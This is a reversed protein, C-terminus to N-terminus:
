LYRDAIYDIYKENSDYYNNALFTIVEQYSIASFKVNDAKTYETFREIEKRHEHGEEGLVDYWLYLLRFSNKGYMKKLGLIHKILQSSDLFKFENDIPSITKALINLNPINNWLPIIDNNFYKPDFGKKGDRRKSYAESFKCEIAFVKYQADDNNEIVVDINPHIQFANSIPFKQEFRIDKQTKNQKECLRCAHSINEIKGSTKWYQFINVGIASSSHVANMKASSNINGKLEGGNGKKIDDCVSSDMPEFLNEPLTQTYAQAGETGKSRLTINKSKAWLTQKSKIYCLGKM